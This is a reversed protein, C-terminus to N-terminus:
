LSLFLRGCQAQTEIYGEEIKMIFVNNDLVTIVDFLYFKNKTNDIAILNQDV